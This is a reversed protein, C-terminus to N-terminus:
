PRLGQFTGSGEEGISWTGTVRTQTASLLQFVGTFNVVVTGEPGTGTATMTAAGVRTYTGSLTYQNQEDDVVTGTIAGNEAANLTFTGTGDGAITGSYTGTFVNTNPEAVRFGTFTANFAGSITGTPVASTGSGSFTVNLTVTEAGTTSQAQFTTGSVSGSGTLTGLDADNVIFNVNGNSRVDLVVDGGARNYSAHYVGGAAFEERPTCGASTMMCGAILAASMFIANGIKV